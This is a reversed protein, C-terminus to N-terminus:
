QPHQDPDGAYDGGDADLGNDAQGADRQCGVQAGEDEVAEGADPRDDREDFPLIAMHHAVQRNWHEAQDGVDHHHARDEVEGDDSGRIRKVLGLDAEDDGPRPCRDRDQVDCNRTPPLAAPDEACGGLPGSSRCARDDYNLFRAPPRFAARGYHKRIAFTSSPCSVSQPGYRSPLSSAIPLQSHSSPITKATASPRPPRPPPSTALRRAISTRSLWTLSAGSFHGIPFFSRRAM